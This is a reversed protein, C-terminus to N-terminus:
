TPEDVDRVGRERLCRRLDDLGRYVLNEARRGVWGTLRAIEAVTHGLLHLTVARRRPPILGGLCGRLAARAERGEVLDELPLDNTLPPPGSEIPAEPRRERSRIEDIVAWRLARMLYYPTIDRNGERRTAKLVRLLAEQVIDDASGPPIRPFRRALLRKL